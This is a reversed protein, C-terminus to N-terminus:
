HYPSWRSRCVSTCEKGVRREESRKAADEPTDANARVRLRRFDDAWGLITGFNADTAPPVLPVSGIIVRGDGGDITLMDGERLEHGRREISCERPAARSDDRIRPPEGRRLKDFICRVHCALLCRRGSGM